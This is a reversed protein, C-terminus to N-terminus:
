RVLEDSNEILQGFGYLFMSGVYALLSGAILEGFAAFILDEDIFCIAFFGIVAVIIQIICFAKAFGKIKSRINDFM